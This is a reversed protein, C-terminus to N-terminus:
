YGELDSPSDDIVNNEVHADDLISLQSSPKNDINNNSLTNNNDSSINQTKALKKIGKQSLKRHDHLKEIASEIINSLHLSAEALAELDIKKNLYETVFRKTVLHQNLTRGKTYGTADIAPVVLYKGHNKDSKTSEILVYIFSIDEPDFKIIVNRDGYCKRYDLLEPSNYTIHNLLIGTRTHKRKEVKALVVDLKEIDSKSFEAPPFRSASERWFLSPIKTKNAVLGQHYDDVIWVHMYKILASFTLVAQAIPDYDGKKLINEFTKGPITMLASDNITKFTREVLPKLWPKGPPNFQINTTLQLCALHLDKSWFEAGNDVVMSEFKGFCPWDNQTGYLVRVDPKPKVAHALAKSVSLYSPENFSIYFGLICSSYSDIITTLYPRGLPVFLEDDLVVLDLPTHDIEVRELIRTAPIHQGIVRYHLDAKYKGQRAVMVEYPPLAHIRKTYGKYSIPKVFNSILTKNETIVLQSYKNFAAQITPKEPKLFVKLSEKYLAQELNSTQLATSGSLNTKPILSNIMRGSKIYDSYWRALTRCSPNCDLDKPLENLILSLNKPTWGGVIRKEVYDIVNIRKMVENQIKESCAALDPDLYVSRKSEEYKSRITNLEEIIFESKFEDVNFKDLDLNAMIM